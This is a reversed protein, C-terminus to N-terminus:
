GSLKAELQEVDVILNSNIKNVETSEGQIPVYEHGLNKALVYYHDRVVDNHIEFITMEDGWIMNTLGAGHPAIVKDAKSFLTIQEKVSLEGAYVREFDFNKLLNVVQRENEIRRKPTKKRSIYIRDPYKETNSELTSDRLNKRLWHLNEPNPEPYSPLVLNKVDIAPPKWELWNSPNLELLELTEQIYSPPDNPIIYIPQVGTKNKYYEIGRLKPLHELIWHYYNNWGSFLSVGCDVTQSARRSSRFSTYLTEMTLLPYNQFSKQISAKIRGQGPMTISDELITGDKTVGIGKPGLLRINEIEYVFDKRYSFQYSQLFEAENKTKKFPNRSKSRQLPDLNEKAPLKHYEEVRTTENLIEESRLIINEDPSIDVIDILKGLGLRFAGRVVEKAGGRNYANKGKSKISM